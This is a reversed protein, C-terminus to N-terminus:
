EGKNKFIIKKIDNKNYYITDIKYITDVIIFTNNQYIEQLDSYQNYIVEKEKNITELKEETVKNIKRIDVLEKMADSLSNELKGKEKLLKENTEELLCHLKKSEEISKLHQNVIKQNEYLEVDLSDLVFQKENREYELNSMTVDVYSFISDRETHMLKIEEKTEVIFSNEYDSKLHYTILIIIVVSILLFLYRNKM